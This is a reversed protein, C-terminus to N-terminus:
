WQIVQLLLSLSTKHRQLQNVLRNVGSEQRSWNLRRRISSRGSNALLPTILTELESFVIVTQTLIVTFDEIQILTARYRTVTRARDVFSQLARFVIRIHEIESLVATVSAPARRIQSLLSSVQAAAALIGTISAAISLPDM